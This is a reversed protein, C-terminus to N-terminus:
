WIKTLIRHCKFFLFKNTTRSLVGRQHAMNPRWPQVGHQHAATDFPPAATLPTARPGLALAASLPRLPPSSRPGSRAPASLAYHGPCHPSAAASPATAPPADPRYRPLPSAPRPSLPPAACCLLRASSPVLSCPARSPRRSDCPAPSGHLKPGAPSPAHPHRSFQGNIAVDCPAIKKLFLDFKSVLIFWTM